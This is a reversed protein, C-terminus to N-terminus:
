NCVEVNARADWDIFCNTANSYPLPKTLMLIAVTCVALAAGWKMVGRGNQEMIAGVVFLVLVFAVVGLIGSLM